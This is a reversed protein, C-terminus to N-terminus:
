SEKPTFLVLDTKNAEEQWVKRGARNQAHSGPGFITDYEAARSAELEQWAEATPCIFHQAYPPLGDPIPPFGLDQDLHRLQEGIYNGILDWPVPPAMREELADLRRKMPSNM